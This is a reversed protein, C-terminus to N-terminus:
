LALVLPTTADLNYLLPVKSRSETEDARTSTEVVRACSKVNGAFKVHHLDTVGLTICFVSTRITFIVVENLVHTSSYSLLSLIRLLKVM